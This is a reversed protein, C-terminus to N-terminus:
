VGTYGRVLSILLAVPIVGLSYLLTLTKAMVTAAQPQNELQLIVVSQQAAPMCGQMLLVFWLFPDNMILGLRRGITLLTFAITPACVFRAFAVPLVRRFNRLSIVTDSEGGSPTVFSGALVLAAAPRFGQGLIQLAGWIFTLPAGPAVLMQRLLPSTGIVIGALCSIVAPSLLRPRFPHLWLQKVTRRVQLFLSRPFPPPAPRPPPPVQELSPSMGWDAFADAWQPDDEDVHHKVPRTPMGALISYGYSWMMPAQVTLYFAIYSNVKAMVSPDPHDRFLANTFLIPLPGANSFSCLMKLRRGSQSKPSIRLIRLLAEGVFSGLIIQSACFFPLPLLDRVRAAPSALTAAISTCLFAPQFVNRVLKSLVSRAAQDLDDRKAAGIGILALLELVAKSSAELAGRQIHLNSLSVPLASLSSTRPYVELRRSVGSSRVLPPQWVFAASAETTMCLVVLLPFLTSPPPSSRPPSALRLNSSEDGSGPCRQDVGSDIM